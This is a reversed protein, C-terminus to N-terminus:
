WSSSAKPREAAPCALGPGRARSRYILRASLLHGSMLSAAGLGSTLLEFRSHPDFMRGLGLLVLGGLPLLVLRRRRHQRFGLVISVVALGAAALVLVMEVREDAFLWVTVGSVGVLM